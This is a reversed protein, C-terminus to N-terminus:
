GVETLLDKGPELDARIGFVEGEMLRHILAELPEAQEVHAKYDELEKFALFTLRVVLPRYTHNNFTKCTLSHIYEAFLQFLKSFPKGFCPPVDM